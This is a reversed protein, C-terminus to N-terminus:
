EDGDCALDDYDFGQESDLESDVDDESDESDEESDEDLDDYLVEELREIKRDRATLTECLWNIWDLLEGFLEDDDMEAVDEPDVELVDTVYSEIATRLDTNNDFENM